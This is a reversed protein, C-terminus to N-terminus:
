HSSHPSSFPGVDIGDIPTHTAAALLLAAAACAGTLVTTRILTRMWRRCMVRVLRLLLTAAFPLTAASTGIMALPTHELIM